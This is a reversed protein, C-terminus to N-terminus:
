NCSGKKATEQEWIFLAQMGQVPGTSWSVLELLQRLTEGKDLARVFDASLSGAEQM